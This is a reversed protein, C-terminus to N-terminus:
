LDRGAPLSADGDTGPEKIGQRWQLSPLKESKFFLKMVVSLHHGPYVVELIEFIFETSYHARSSPKFLLSSSLAFSKSSSRLWM